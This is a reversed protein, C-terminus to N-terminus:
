VGRPYNYVVHSEVLHGWHVALVLLQGIPCMLRGQAVHSQVLWIDGTGASGASIATRYSM